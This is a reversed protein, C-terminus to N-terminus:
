FLAQLNDIDVLPAVVALHEQLPVTHQGVQLICFYAYLTVNRDADDTDQGTCKLSIQNAPTIPEPSAVALPMAHCACHNALQEVPQQVTDM